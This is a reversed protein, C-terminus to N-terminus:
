RKGKSTRIEEAFRRTEALAGEYSMDLRIEKIMAIYYERNRNRIGSDSSVWIAFNTLSDALLNLVGESQIYRDIPSVGTSDQTVGHHIEHHDSPTLMVVFFDNQKIRSRPMWHHVELGPNESRLYTLYDPIALVNKKDQQPVKGRKEKARQAREQAQQKQQAVRKITKQERKPISVIKMEKKKPIYINDNLENPPKYKQKQWSM